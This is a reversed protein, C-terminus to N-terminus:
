KKVEHTAEIVVFPVPLALELDGRVLDKFLKEKEHALMSVLHLMAVDFSALALNRWATLVAHVTTDTRM